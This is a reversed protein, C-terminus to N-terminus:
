AFHGNILIDPGTQVIYGAEIANALINSDQLFDTWDPMLKTVAANIAPVTLECNPLRLIEKLM